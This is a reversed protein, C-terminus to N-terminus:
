TLYESNIKVYDYSCDCTYMVASSKGLNLDVNVSFSKQKYVDELDKLVFDPTKRGGKVVSLKDFSIDVRDEKVRAGSYGVAAIIRGWNPDGGFWSTKVLLSNAIARAAKRADAASAAGVVNVNVFKTAGEGDLVIKKALQAAVEYLAAEFVAWNRSGVTLPKNGAAGNALVLVTDNTSQDGDVTICNFTRDVIDSLCAQLTRRDVAADTTIFGLMTAMNPSIMGSGKAMGGVRVRGGDITVEVAYQKDVLDTTMIAKAATAGGDSTLETAAIRIGREIKDMPMMKGITGTSCAFVAEIPVDLAQATMRAMNEADRAGQPGTCANACGSNVVVAHATGGKLHKRCLKVPAACVANKTFVGAIVAPKATYVMAMDLKNAKIGAAIGAAKFGRAATVGGSVIKMNKIKKTM